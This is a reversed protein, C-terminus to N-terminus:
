AAVADPVTLTPSRSPSRFNRAALPESVTWVNRPRTLDLVAEPDVATTAATRPPTDTCVLLPSTVTPTTSPVATRSSM